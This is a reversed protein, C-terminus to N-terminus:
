FEIDEEIEISKAKNRLEARTPISISKDFLHNKSHEKGIDAERCDRMCVNLWPNKYILDDIIDTVQSSTIAKQSIYLSGQLWEFGNNVMHRRIIEYSYNWNESPYYTELAKTDLDFVLQKRRSRMINRQEDNRTFLKLLDCNEEPEEEDIWQWKNLSRLFEAERKLKLMGLELCGYLDEGGEYILRCPIDSVNTVKGARNNFAKDAMEKLENLVAEPTDKKIDIVNKYM